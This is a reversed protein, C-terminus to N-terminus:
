KQTKIKKESLNDNGSDPLAPYNISAASCVLKRPLPPGGLLVIQAPTYISLASLKGIGRQLNKRFYKSIVFGVM